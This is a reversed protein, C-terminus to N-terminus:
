KEIAADQLYLAALRELEAPGLGLARELYRPVGGFDAEVAHLAADLFDEQVRWLVALVEQPARGPNVPPMRFLDNTLLYDQMVVPRPVGLALLILAAAFGTRDKGATCHFVLPTDSELLHGFLEAFRGANDHVFARYTQQMLHVTEQATLAHGSELLDKIRQVVTPEIALSYVVVGPLACALPARETEGRFDCVRALGLPSLLAIDDPTLAALHDSRFLRRWRVLRGGRGAYGGLDRFNTAGSLNLSRAPIQM